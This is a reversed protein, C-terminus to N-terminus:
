HAKELVLDFVNRGKWSPKLGNFATKGLLLDIYRIGRRREHDRLNRPSSNVRSSFQERVHRHDRMSLKQMDTSSVPVRLKLHVIWLLQGVTVFNRHKVDILLEVGSLLKIVVRLHRAHEETAPGYLYGDDYMSWHTAPRVTSYCPAVGLDYLVGASPKPYQRERAALPDIIIYHPWGGIEPAQQPM